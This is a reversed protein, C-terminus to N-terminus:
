FSHHTVRIQKGWKKGVEGAAGVLVERHEEQPALLFLVNATRLALVEAVGCRRGLELAMREIFPERKVRPFHQYVLVSHGRRAAEEVEARYLFKSSNKNGRKTSKVQLGNDPDFFVLDAGHAHVWFREFWADRGTAVDPLIDTFFRAGPLVGAEEIAQVTRAKGVIDHLVHFLKDDYGRWKEPQGLYEIFKGDTRGDDETLMWCVSLSIGIDGGALQRLLGYKRFDNVDGVYQNKV